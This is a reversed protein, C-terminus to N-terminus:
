VFDNSREARLALGMHAMFQTSIQNEVASRTAYWLDWLLLHSLDLWERDSSFVSVRDVKAFISRGYFSDIQSREMIRREEENTMTQSKLYFSLHPRFTRNSRLHESDADWNGILELAKDSGLTHRRSIQEIFERNIPFLKRTFIWIFDRM